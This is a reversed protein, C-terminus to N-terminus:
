IACGLVWIYVYMCLCVCMCVCVYVCRGRICSSSVGWHGYTYICLCMCVCVHICVQGMHLVVEKREGEFLVGSFGSTCMCVYICMCVYRGRICCLRKEKERLYCVGIGMEM